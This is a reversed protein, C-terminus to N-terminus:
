SRDGDGVGSETNRPRPVRGSVRDQLLLRGLHREVTEAHATATEPTWEYFGRGTKMGHDGRAVKEALVAPVERGANRLIEATLDLGVMDFRDFLGMVALRRGFGLTVLRDIMDPTAIGTEVLRLAESRLAAQLRNAVFAPLEQELIVPVKGTEELLRCTTEVVARDTQQAPVVEVVPMLHAPQFYHVALVREPHVCASAIQTISLSSTDSAFIADSPALRDLDRFVQQKIALDEVITEVIYQHDVAAQALDTTRTIRALTASAQQQSVLGTEVLLDLSREIKSQAQRSTELRTNFVTVARGALAFDLAIGYGMSGGGIVGIRQIRQAVM